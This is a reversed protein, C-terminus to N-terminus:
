ISEIITKFMIEERLGELSEETMIWNKDRYGMRVARNLNRLAEEKSGDLAHLCALNRYVWSNNPNSQHSMKLSQAASQLQGLKLQAFGRNNFAWPNTPDLALAKDSSAISEQYRELMMLTFGMNVHASTKNSDMDLAKNFDVLASKFNKIANKSVGRNNYADASESGSNIIEDYTEISQKHKGLRALSLAKNFLLSGDESNSELAEEISQLKKIEEAGADEALVSLENKGIDRNNQIPIEESSIIGREAFVLSGLSYGSSFSFLGDSTAFGSDLNIKVSLSDAKEPIDLKLSLEKGMSFKMLEAERERGNAEVRVFPLVLDPILTYNFKLSLLLSSKISGTSTAFWQGNLEDVFPKAIEFSHRVPMKVRSSTHKQIFAEHIEISVFRSQPFGRVSRVELSDASIWRYRLEDEPSSVIGEDAKMWVGIEDRVEIPKDSVFLISQNNLIPELPDVGRLETQDGLSCGLPFALIVM